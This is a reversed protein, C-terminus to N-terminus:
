VSLIPPVEGEMKLKGRKFSAISIIGERDVDTPVFDDLSNFLEEGKKSRIIVTSSGDSSGTSGVSIDALRATFDDCYACNNRYAAVLATVKCSNEKGNSRVIYRGRSIQVKEAKDLEIGLLEMTKESLVDYDFSKLCFLGIAVIDIAEVEKLMAQQLKRTAKIECPTGVIAIKKKGEKIAEGIKSVMPAAVYKTGRADKIEEESTAIIPEARFGSGRAAVIACDFTSKKMGSLLLSTVIGGDQGQVGCSGATLKRVIGLEADREGDLFAEELESDNTETMPCVDYCIGNVGCRIVDDYELSCDDVLEPMGKLVIHECFSACAGCYTCFGKAIVREKLAEFGESPKVLPLFM